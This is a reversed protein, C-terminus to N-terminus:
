LLPGDFTLVQFPDLIGKICFTNLNGKWVKRNILAFLGCSLFHFIKRKRTAVLTINPCRLYSLRLLIGSVSSWLIHLGFPQLYSIFESIM